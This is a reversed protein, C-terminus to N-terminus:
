VLFRIEEESPVSRLMADFHADFGGKCSLVRVTVAVLMQENCSSPLGSRHPPPVLKEEVSRGPVSRANQARQFDVLVGLFSAPAIRLGPHTVLGGEKRCSFFRRTNEM